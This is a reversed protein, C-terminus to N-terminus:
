QNGAVPSLKRLSSMIEDTLRPVVALAGVNEQLQSVSRSGFLVSTVDPNKLCYAIALQSPLCGIDEAIRVFPDIKPLLPTLRADNLHTSLRGTGSSSNPRANARGPYANSDASRYKGSLLGGCLSYSSVIAIGATRCIHRMREDEVPSRTLVSYALQAASPPRLGHTTAVHVAEEIKDATWNLVGWSRLKGTAIVRDLATVLDLMPLSDPPKECYEIDLYDMQLRSLSGDLEAEISENPYIEFWLKNGIMLSERRVGIQRLLRGFLVESYGTNLPANGTRDNYRADDLFNIGAALGAEIVKRAEDEPM